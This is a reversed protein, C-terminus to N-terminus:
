RDLELGGAALVAALQEPRLARPGVPNDKPRWGLVQQLKRRPVPVPPPRSHKFHIAMIEGEAVGNATQLIQPWRYVGLRRFRQFLQKAPGVIVEDALSLARVASVARGGKESSVYWLVLFPAEPIGSRARSRYYANELNFSLSPTSGFLTGRALDADFLQEAYQPQIPVLVAPLGPDLLVAPSLEAAVPALAHRPLPNVALLELYERVPALDPRGALGDRLRTALTSIPAAGSPCLKAYGAEIKIFGLDDLLEDLGPGGMHDPVVVVPSGAISAEQVLDSLLQLILTSRLPGEPVRLERLSLRDPGREVVLLALLADAGKQVVRVDASRASSLYSALKERFTEKRERGRFDQFRLVLDDLEGPGVRRVTLQSGGLRVPLYRSADAIRDLSRILDSPRLIELGLSQAAQEQLGLLPGDRTLFCTAGVAITYALHEHDARDNPSLPPPLHAAILDRASQLAEERCSEERLLSKVLRRVHDRREDDQKLLEDLFAPTVCLVIEDQLWDDLLGLTEERGEPPDLLDYVVSSDLVVLRRTDTRRHEVLRLLPPLDLECRWQILRRGKRNKGPLEGIAAFGVRPWFSSEEYDERCVLRIGWVDKVRAKLEQALARGLGHGRREAAVCLHVISADNTRHTVRYVLYGALEEGILAALIWGRRAHDEFAGEPFHGLKGSYRRGLAVVAPLLTPHQDLCVLRLAGAPMDSM